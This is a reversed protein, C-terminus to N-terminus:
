DLICILSHHTIPNMNCFYSCKKFSPLGRSVAQAGKCLKGYERKNIPAKYIKFKKEVCFKVVECGYLKWKKQSTSIFSIFFHSQLMGKKFVSHPALKRLPSPNVWYANSIISLLMKMMRRTREITSTKAILLLWVSM